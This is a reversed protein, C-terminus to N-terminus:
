ADGMGTFLGIQFYKFIFEDREVFIIPNDFWGGVDVEQDDIRNAGPKSRYAQWSPAFYNVPARCYAFGKTTGNRFDITAAARRAAETLRKAAAIPDRPWPPLGWGDADPYVAPPFLVPRSNLQGRGVRTRLGKDAFDLARMFDKYAHAPSDAGDSQVAESDAIAHWITKLDEGLPQWYRPKTSPWYSRALERLDKPIRFRAFGDCLAGWMSIENANPQSRGKATWRWYMEHTLVNQQMRRSEDFDSRTAREIVAGGFTLESLPSEYADESLYATGFALNDANDYVIVMPLLDPPAGANATTEGRCAQPPRIVVAKGDSMRRGFVEPVMGLDVSRSNDQYNTQRVNCGVVFDFDQPEGKYTLKIKLRFYTGRDVEVSKAYTWGGILTGIDARSIAWGVAFLAAILAVPIAARKM